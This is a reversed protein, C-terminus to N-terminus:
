AGDTKNGGPELTYTYPSNIRGLGLLTALSNKSSKIENYQSALALTSSWDSDSNSDMFDVLSMTKTQLDRTYDMIGTNASLGKFDLVFQKDENLAKELQSKEPFKEKISIDNNKDLSLSIKQDKGIGLEEMLATLKSTVSKEQGQAANKINEMKLPGTPNLGMAERTKATAVQSSLTVRDGSQAAQLTEKESTKELSAPNANNIKENPNYYLNNSNYTHTISTM